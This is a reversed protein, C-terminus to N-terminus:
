PSDLTEVMERSEAVLTDYMDVAWLYAQDVGGLERDRDCLHLLDLILFGILEDRSFSTAPLADYFDLVTAARRAMMKFYGDPDPPRKRIRGKATTAADTKWMHHRTAKKNSMENVGYGDVNVTRRM